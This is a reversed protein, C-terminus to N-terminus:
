IGCGSFRVRSQVCKYIRRCCQLLQHRRFQRVIKIHRRCQHIKAAGKLTDFIGDLSDQIPLVFCASLQGKARGANILTPTNPMFRGSTMLEEFRKAWKERARGQPEPAAIAHAVRAFLELPSEIVTGADDRRLYRKQLVTVASPTLQIPKRAM